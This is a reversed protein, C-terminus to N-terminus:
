QQSLQWEGYAAAPKNDAYKKLFDEYLAIRKQPDPEASIATLEKDEPTGAPISIKVNQSWGIACLLLLAFLTLHRAVRM